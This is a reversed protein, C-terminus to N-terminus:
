DTQESVTSARMLRAFDQAAHEQLSLISHSYTELTISINAHGLREQVIKPHTNAQLLVSAHFHRLDHLRVHSVGAKAVLLLTGPLPTLPLPDPSLSVM